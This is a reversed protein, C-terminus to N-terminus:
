NGCPLINKM